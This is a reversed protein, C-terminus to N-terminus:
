VKMKLYDSFATVQVKSEELIDEFLKADDNLVTYLSDLSQSFFWARVGERFHTKLATVKDQLIIDSIEGHVEDSRVFYHAAMTYLSEESLLKGSRSLLKTCIFATKAINPKMNGKGDRENIAEHISLLGRNVEANTFQNIINVYAETIYMRRLVPIDTDNKYKAYERGEPDRWIIDMAYFHEPSPSLQRQSLRTMDNKFTNFLMRSLLGPRNKLKDLETPINNHLAADGIKESMSFMPLKEGEGNGTVQNNGEESKM